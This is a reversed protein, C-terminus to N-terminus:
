SKFFIATKEAVFDRYEQEFRQRSFRNVSASIVGSVFFNSLRDFRNVCDIISDPTQEPFFLGTKNEIVTELIGGKAFALVPTGCAMAEVPAIGFDEQAAFVFARAKQMYSVLSSRPQQGLFIVNAGAISKLYALEPGDGAVILRKNPMATFAKVLIDVRKHYVLRSASIFYDDKSEELKFVDTDVPPYIVTSERRYLKEIRKATFNSNAIFYDVRNASVVDWLRMFHLVGRIFHGKIGKQNGRHNLFSQYLEWAARIPNHLYCIHLQDIGSIAGKAVIFSSSLILDYQRLDFQEIALPYLPLYSRYKKVGFPLKQIFSTKIDASGLVTSILEAHKAMLTYVPSPYIKLISELTSDAGGNGTVLDHVIATKLKGQM